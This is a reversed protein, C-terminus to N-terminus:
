AYTRGEISAKAVQHVVDKAWETVLANVFVHRLPVGPIDSTAGAQLSGSAVLSLPKGATSAGPAVNAGRRFAENRLAGFPANVVSFKADWSDGNQMYFMDEPPIAIDM